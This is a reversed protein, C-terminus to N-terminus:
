VLKRQEPEAPAAGTHVRSPATMPVGYKALLSRASERSILGRAVADETRTRQCCVWRSASPPCVPRHPCAGM